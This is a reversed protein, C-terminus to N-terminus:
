GAADLDGPDDPHEPKRRTKWIPGLDRLEAEICDVHLRIAGGGAFFLTVYGGPLTQAEFKVALLELADSKNDLSLQRFQANIVKEFRLAARRREYGGGNSARKENASIWDFRNVVAAFRREQAIYAMDEMRLVADQLHASMITLDEDDLAILKLLQM